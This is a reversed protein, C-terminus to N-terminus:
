CLRGRSRCGRDRWAHGGEGGIAGLDQAAHAAGDGAIIGREVVAEQQGYFIGSGEGSSLGDDDEGVAGVVGAEDRGFVDGFQSLGGAGDDVHDARLLRSDSGTEVATKSRMLLAM